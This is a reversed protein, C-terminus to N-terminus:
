SERIDLIRLVRIVLSDVPCRFGTDGLAVRVACKSDVPVAGAALAHHEEPPKRYLAFYYCSSLAHALCILPPQRM